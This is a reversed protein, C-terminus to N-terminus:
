ILIIVIIEGIKVINYNCWEISFGNFSGFIIVVVIIEVIYIIKILYDNM